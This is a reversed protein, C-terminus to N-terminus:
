SSPFFDVVNSARQVEIIEDALYGHGEAMTNRADGLSVFDGFGQNSFMIDVSASSAKGSSASSCRTSGIIKHPAQGPSSGNSTNIANSSQILARTLQVAYM